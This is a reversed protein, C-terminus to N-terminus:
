VEEQFLPVMRKMRIEMRQATSLRLEQDLARKVRRERSSPAQSDAAYWKVPAAVPAPGPAHSAHRKAARATGSASDAQAAEPSAAPAPAAGHDLVQAWEVARRKTAPKAGVDSAGSARKRGAAEIAARKKSLTNAAAADRITAQRFAVNKQRSSAADDSSADQLAAAANAFPSSSTYHSPHSRHSSRKAPSSSTAARRSLAARNNLRSELAREHLAADPSLTAHAARASLVALVCLALLTKHPLFLM